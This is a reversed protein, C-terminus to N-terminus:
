EYDELRAEADEHTDCEFYKDGQTLLEIDKEKLRSTKINTIDRSKNEIFMNGYKDTKYIAIFGDKIGLVYKNPAYKDVTKVFVVELPSFSDVKYETNKYLNEIDAKTNGALKEGTEEKEIIVDGSKAYKIKFILNCKSSLKNGLNSSANVSDYEKVQYMNKETDYSKLKTICIYCSLTFVLITVITLVIKRVRVTDM